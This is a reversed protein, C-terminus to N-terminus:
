NQDYSLNELRKGSGVNKPCGSLAVMQSATTRTAASDAFQIIMVKIRKQVVNHTTRIVVLLTKSKIIEVPVNRSAVLVISSLHM